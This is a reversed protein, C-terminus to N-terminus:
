HNGWAGKNISYGHGTVRMSMAPDVKIRVLETGQSM